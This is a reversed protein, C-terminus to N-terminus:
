KKVEDNPKIKVVIAGRLDGFQYNTANDQPYFQHITKRAIEPMTEVTGHCKLCVPKNIRLPQYFKYTGDAVKTLVASKTNELQFLIKAETKTPKNLPNRFKLSIRKISINEGLKQNVEETLRYANQSCFEIAGKIDKKQMFKKMNSGLTKLLQKSAMQGTYFIQQLDEGHLGAVLLTAFLVKKM